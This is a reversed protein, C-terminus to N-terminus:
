LTRPMFAGSEDDMHFAIKPSSFRGSVMKFRRTEINKQEAKVTHPLTSSCEQKYIYKLKMHKPCSIITLKNGNSSILSCGHDYAQFLVVELNFNQYYM